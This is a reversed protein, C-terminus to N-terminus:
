AHAPAETNQTHDPDDAHSGDPPAPPALIAVEDCYRQAWRHLVNKSPRFLLAAACGEGNIGGADAALLDDLHAIPKLGGLELRLLAESLVGKVAGARLRLCWDPSAHLPRRTTGYWALSLLEFSPLPVPVPGLRPPWRTRTWGRGALGRALGLVRELDPVPAASALAVPGSSAAEVGSPFGRGADLWRRAHIQALVNRAPAGRLIPPPDPPHYSPRGRDDVGIGLLYDRLRPERSSRAPDHLSALSVALAAEPTHGLAHAWADGSGGVCPRLGREAGESGSRVLAMEARGLAIVFEAVAANGGRAALAFMARELARTALRVGAPAESWASLRRWWADVDALLRAEPRPAVEVRGAHVALHDRGARALLAQREFGDLGRAVGLEGAARAMDLGSRASTAGIQARGERLLTEVDPLRAARSWTPLWVEARGSEDAVGSGFGASTLRVTFPAAALAGGTTAFRRTAVAGLLLTGEVALVLDWPNGVDESDGRLQPSRSPSDDRGLPGLNTRALPAPVDFVSAGLMSAPTARSRGAPELALVTVLARAYNSSLEWRGDNGGSGLLPPFAPRDDTLVTVADLWRVASDALRARLAGILAPKAADKPRATLGHNAVIRRCVGIANRLGDLRADPALLLRDHAERAIRDGPYFGSGGNWPSCVAAPQYDELLFRSLGDADLRSRLIAVGHEWRLSAEPDSQEAVLRLIGVGKLWGSLRAARCGWLVIESM